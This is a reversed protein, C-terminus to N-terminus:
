HGDLRFVAISLPRLRYTGDRPSYRQKWDSQATDLIREWRRGEDLDPLLFIISEHHANFMFFLTDGELAKGMEDVEGM